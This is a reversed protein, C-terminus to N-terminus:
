EKFSQNYNIIQGYSSSCSLKIEKCNKEQKRTISHKKQISNVFVILHIKKIKRYNNPSM